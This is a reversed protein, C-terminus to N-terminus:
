VIGRRGGALADDGGGGRLTLPYTYYTPPYIM